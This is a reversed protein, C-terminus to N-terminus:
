EPSSVPEYKLLPSNGGEQEIKPLPTREVAQEVEPLPTREVSQSLKSPPTREVAERPPVSDRGVRPAGGPNGDGQKTEISPPPGRNYGVLSPDFPLRQAEIQPAALRDYPFNNWGTPIQAGAARQQCDMATLQLQYERSLVPRVHRGPQAVIDECGM